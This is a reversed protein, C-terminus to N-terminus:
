KKSNKLLFIRENARLEMALTEGGGLAFFSRAQIAKKLADNKEADSGNVVQYKAYFEDLIRKDADSLPAPTHNAVAEAILTM